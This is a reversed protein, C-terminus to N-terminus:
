AGLQIGISQPLQSLHARFTALDSEAVFTALPESLIYSRSVNLMQIIEQNAELIFGDANIVLSAIPFFQFLDQYYQREQFLNENAIEIADLSTQMQEFTVQLNELTADIAECGAADEGRLAALQRRIMQFHYEIHEDNM